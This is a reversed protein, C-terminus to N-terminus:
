INQFAMLEQAPSRDGTCSIRRPASLFKLRFGLKKYLKKIRLTAQNSIIVPGKHQALFQALREQDEFSFDQMSYKTFEVDYPPDAYIFDESSLELQEFDLCAFTWPKFVKKYILFDHKYHIRKYKGFPVNFEGQNNFRCLGNYGTRNLYYFLEATQASRDNKGLLKNFKERSKYYFDENNEFPSHIFFGQKLLKFFHVLPWNIDNLLAKKPQLGLSVALGGCFPEVLRRHTHKKWYPQIYPVFWRKGGAWKLPPLAKDLTKLSNLKKDQQSLFRGAPAPSLSQFPQPELSM